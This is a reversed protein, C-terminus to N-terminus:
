KLNITKIILRAGFTPFAKALIQSKFRGKQDFNISDSTFNIIKFNHKELLDGLSIKTFYRIHGASHDLSTEILPNVGFLLMLRRGLTAINPTSLVLFGNPKLIRKIEKLFFDTDYIHEIIEGATITNFTNKQYPFTSHLDAIKIKFGKKQGIQAVKK